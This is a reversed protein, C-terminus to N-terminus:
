EVSRVLRLIANAVEEPSEQPAWHGVGEILRLFKFDSCVEGNVMRELAGPEQYIGWDMEGSVFACPVEIKKGAFTDFDQTFRGDAATRVRYWNLGGQFGTRGYEAVYVELDSDPLWAQSLQQANEPENEMDLAIAEPMTADLPMIYYFPLQFLEDATWTKLPRPCNRACSGSKLHFYGRLFEHLRGPPLNMENSASATSYYWKYHKRNRQALEAHISNSAASEMGSGSGPTGHVHDPNTATNFPLSPTGNFPHSLLLVSEFFDPRILACMAATVAGCDHGVVCRVSRYGLAHVLIVMDRALSTLSFTSLDVENYSRTDWGTTRGFGRQDPAVAYYGAEALPPLVKRWSFALEPFGHLLLILPRNRDPSYGAELIHFNLAATSIFRSSVNPPLPLSAM